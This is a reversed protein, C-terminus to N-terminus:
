KEKREFRHSEKWFMPHQVIFFINVVLQGINWTTEFMGFTFYVLIMLIPIMGYQRNNLGRRYRGLYFYVMYVTLIVLVVGAPIGYYYAIQLWLNQAHWCRYEKTILYYGEQESHGRWNLDKWYTEWIAMRIQASNWERSEDLIPIEEQAKVELVFPNWDVVTLIQSFREKVTDLFEDLEVYKWSDAPDFSHVKNESYEGVFWVPHHLITPFWRISLFVLPFAIVASCGLAAAWVLLKGWSDKWVDHFVWIGYVCTVVAVSLWATRCLTTFQLALLVGALFTLLAFWYRKAGKMRLFHIKILVMCFIILYYLATMNCNSFPGKYRVEDYPRFGYAFCQLLFFSLISGDVMAEILAKKDKDTYETLYFIGFMFLFWIPWVRGSASVIMILALLLGLVALGNMKPLKLKGSRYRRLLLISMIGIWWLNLLGSVYKWVLVPIERWYIGLGVAVAICVLTWLGSIRNIMEKIPYASMIMLMMVFGMSNVAVAWVSGNQTERIWAILNLAIFLLIYLTKKSKM